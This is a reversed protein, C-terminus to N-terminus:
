MQFTEYEQIFANNRARRVELTGERTVQILNWIEKTMTCASGKFFEDCNLSSHINNMVKSDYKARRIVEQSWSEYPKEITKNDVVQIPIIYGNVVANWIGRNISEVFIKIHVKWFPYNVSFFLLPRNISM